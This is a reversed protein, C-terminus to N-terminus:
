DVGPRRPVQSSPPSNPNPAPSNNFPLRQAVSVFYCLVRRPFFPASPEQELDALAATSSRRCQRMQLSVFGKQFVHRRIAARPEHEDLMEIGMVLAQEDLQKGGMFRHRDECGVVARA